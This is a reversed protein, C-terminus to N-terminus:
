PPIHHQSTAAQCSQLTTHSTPMEGMPSCLARRWGQSRQRICLLETGLHSFQAAHRRCIKTFAWKLAFTHEEKNSNVSKTETERIGQPLFNADTFQDRSRSFVDELRVELYSRCDLRKGQTNERIIKKVFPSSNSNRRENSLEHTDGLLLFYLRILALIPMPRRALSFLNGSSPLKGLSYDNMSKKGLNESMINFAKLHSIVAQRGLLAKETAKAM